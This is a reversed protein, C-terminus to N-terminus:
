TKYHLSPGRFAPLLAAQKEPGAHQKWSESFYLRLTERLKILARLMAQFVTDLYAHCGTNWHAARISFAVTETQEHQCDHEEHDQQKPVELAMLTGLRQRLARRSKEM